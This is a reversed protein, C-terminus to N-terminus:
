LRPIFLNELLFDAFRSIGDHLLSEEGDLDPDQEAAIDLHMYEFFAGLFIDQFLESRSYEYTYRVLLPRSYAVGM